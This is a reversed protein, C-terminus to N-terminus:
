DIWPEETDILGSPDGYFLQQHLHINIRAATSRNPSSIALPDGLATREIMQTGWLHLQDDWHSSDILNQAQDRYAAGRDSSNTDDRYFFWGDGTAYDIRAAPIGGGGNQREARASGRDSYILQGGFKAQVQNFVQREFIEQDIITTFSDPFSSASFSIKASPASALIIQVSEIIRHQELSFYANQRGFDLLFLVDVGGNTLQATRLAITRLFPIVQLEVVVILGRSLAFLRDTQADFQSPDTLQLAPIFQENGEKEIFNCWASFGEVPNRLEDLEDHVRRRTEIVGEDCLMLFCPRAGYVEKLKAMSNDLEISSLWPRLKFLPCMLDKDREPLEELAIMEAPRLELLPAYRIQSIERLAVLM